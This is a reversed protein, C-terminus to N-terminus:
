RLDDLSGIRSARYIGSFGAGHSPLRAEWIVDGGATVEFVRYDQGLNVLTNGNSLRQAYGMCCSFVGPEFSWVLTATKAEEDIAYEVARSSPPTDGNGNDILTIHGNSLRRVAHMNWFGGKPDDVFQFQNGRGKGMRWKIEGTEGDVRVVTSLHRVSLLYDGGPLVDIANAHTFDYGAAWPGQWAMDDAEALGFHDFFDWSFLVTGDRGVRELVNSVVTADAPKGVPTLDMTRTEYGFLAADDGGDLLRLEHLDTLDHGVATWSEVENGLADWEAYVGATYPSVSGASIGATIHGNPQLQLDSVAGSVEHYWVVRGSGDILVAPHQPNIGPSRIPAMLTLGPSPAGSGAIELTVISDPLAGTRFSLWDGLVQEGAHGVVVPRLQYDTEPYLGLLPLAIPEEGIPTMRTARAGGPEGLIEIRAGVADTAGLTVIASLVNNPNAAVSASYIRTGSGLPSRLEEHCAGASISLAVSALALLPSNQPSL